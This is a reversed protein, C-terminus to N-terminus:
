GKKERHQEKDNMYVPDNTMLDEDVEDVLDSFLFFSVFHFNM